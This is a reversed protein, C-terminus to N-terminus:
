NLNLGSVPGPALRPTQTGIGLQGVRNDGWSWVSGDSRLALGGSVAVANTLGVVPAPTARFVSPGMGTGLLDGVNEGWSLVVGDSRVAFSTNGFASIGITGSGVGLLTPWAFPQNRNTGDGIQGQDNFGWGYVLGDGRMALAHRTGAAIARVPVMGLGILRAPAARPPGSLGDGRAGATGWSWVYGDSDLALSYFAGAAVAVIRPNPAVGNPLGPVVGAPSGSPVSGIPRGLEGQDNCGIGYVVGTSSLFLSHSDGASAAVINTLGVVPVPSQYALGFNCDVYGAYGWIRATGDNMVAVAPGSGASVSRVGTLGPIPTPVLQPTTIGPGNGQQAVGDTGWAYAVGAANIALSYEGGFSFNTRSGGVPPPPPPPTAVFTATCAIGASMTVAGAPCNPSWASFTFGAAATATLTVATNLAYTESCDAGCSIGAPVSSVTGSGAPMVTVTLDATTPPAATVTLSANASTATGGSNSVDVSYVAGNDAAVSTAATTYTARNAGAIAVGNRKWQYVLIGSRVLGIAGVAFTAAAPAMVSQPAPQVVISPPFPVTSVVLGGGSFSSIPGEVTTGTVIAGPVQAWVQLSADTKWLMPTDGAQMQAPDVQMRLMAPVAFTTGHPTLLVMESVSAVGAPLAATGAGGPAITLATPQSLAGPPVVLRSGNPGDLTGGAAGITMTVAAPPAAEDQSGGCAALALAFLTASIANGIRIVAVTTM